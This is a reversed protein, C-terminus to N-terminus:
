ASGHLFNKCTMLLNRRGTSKLVSEQTVYALASSVQEIYMQIVHRGHRTKSTYNKQEAETQQKFLQARGADILRQEHKLEDNTSM